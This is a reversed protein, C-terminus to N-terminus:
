RVGGEFHKCSIEQRASIRNFWLGEIRVGTTKFVPKDADCYSHGCGKRKLEEPVPHCHRCDCCRRMPAPNIINEWAEDSLGAPKRIDTM